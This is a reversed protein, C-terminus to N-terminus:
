MVDFALEFFRWRASRSALASYSLPYFDWDKAESQRVKAEERILWDSVASAPAIGSEDVLSLGPGVERPPSAVRGM